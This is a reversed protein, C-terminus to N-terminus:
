IEIAHTIDWKWEWYQKNTSERKGRLLRTLPKDILGQWSSNKPKNIRKNIHKMWKQDKKITEKM